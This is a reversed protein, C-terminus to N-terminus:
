GGVSGPHPQCFRLPDRGFGSVEAYGGGFAEDIQSYPTELEPEVSVEHYGGGYAESVHSTAYENQM